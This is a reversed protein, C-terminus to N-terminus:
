KCVAIMTIGQRIAMGTVQKGSPCEFEIKLSEPSKFKVANIDQLPKDSVGSERPLIANDPVFAILESCKIISMTM